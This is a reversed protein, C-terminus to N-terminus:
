IGLPLSGYRSPRRRIICSRERRLPCGAAALAAGGVVMTCAGGKAVRANRVCFARRGACGTWITSAPQTMLFGALFIPTTGPTTRGPGRNGQKRSMQWGAMSGNGCKYPYGVLNIIVPTAFDNVREAKYNDYGKGQNTSVLICLRAAGESDACSSLTIRGGKKELASVKAQLQVM